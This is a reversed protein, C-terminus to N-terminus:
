PREERWPTNQGHGEGARRAPGGAVAPGFGSPAEAGSGEGARRPLYATFVAGEGGSEGGAAGDAAPGEAADAHLADPPLMSISGGRAECVQRVLALGLGREGSRSAKTTFGFAFIEEALGAGVGAGSDVVRVEVVGHPLGEADPYDRVFVEAWGGPGGEAASDLANDVLNGLVLVADSRLEPALPEAVRSMPSLRLEVSRESAQASKALVIAALAPDAIRASVDGSTRAHAVSLDDLFARAEGHAGLELMGALTHLRNAYEHTQARLGRTATRVGDLEGALRDLETRDRLTVVAGADAGRIRVPMRNAVLVRAGSLVVTDAGSGHGGGAPATSGAAADEAGELVDLLREPLGLGRLPLGECEAPLGLLARAPENVLAVRGGADVALVGERVAYLLAERGELLATIEAPELGHTKARVRRSLLWAGAAGLALTGAVTGGILPLAAAAESEADADLLGVSVYGLVAGDQTADRSGDRISDAMVPVKARITRGRTGTEVGTWEEGHAAPGPPTSVRRGILEPDVHSHRIGEPSAVVIYEAGTEATLREALPAIREAPHSGGLAEAVEPMQAVSRAITLVRATYHRDMARDYHVLWLTGTAALVLTLVVAFGIFLEGTLTTRGRHARVAM